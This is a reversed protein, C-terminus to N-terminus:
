SNVTEGAFCAAGIAGAMDGFAAKIIETKHGGIRWEYLSLFSALPEFLDKGAETIGGGLVVCEPSLVNTVSAIGIALKRVSTLWVSHAWYDGARYAELLEHTSQFKGLSRKQITVNGIANELSGPMGTVDQEGDSDVVMHGIHGAKHFAGQYPKGEILLAGGVGTGLTLMAVNKKNKAVGLRAEAMLAAVADNLIRVPQQLFASWNFNELGQLRGPMYAIATNDVNPIGPASIGIVIRKSNSFTYLDQVTQKVANKWMLDDGDNTPTYSQHLTKGAADLAVGKIRTGGLDIGITVLSM